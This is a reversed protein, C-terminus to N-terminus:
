HSRSQLTVEYLHAECKTCFADYGWRSWQIEETCGGGTISSDDRLEPSGGVINRCNGCGYALLGLFLGRSQQAYIETASHNVVNGEELWGKIKEEPNFSIVQEREQEPLAERLQAISSFVKGTLGREGAKGWWISELKSPYSSPGSM